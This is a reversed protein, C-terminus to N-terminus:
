AVQQLARHSADVLALDIVEIRRRTRVVRHHHVRLAVHDEDPVPFDAADGNHDTALAAGDVDPDIVSMAAIGASVHRASEASAVAMSKVNALYHRTPEAKRARTRPACPALEVSFITSRSRM